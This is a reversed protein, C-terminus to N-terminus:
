NGIASFLLSAKSSSVSSNGSGRSVSISSVPLIGM